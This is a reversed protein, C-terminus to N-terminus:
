VSNEIRQNILTQIESRSIGLAITLEDFLMKEAKEFFNKDSYAFPKHDKECEIKRFYLTKILSCIDKHNNNSIIESYKERRFKSDKIWIDEANKMDDIIKLAGNKSVIDRIMDERETPLMVKMNLDQFAPHMIYYKTSKGNFVHEEICDIHCVGVTKHFVYKGVEFM